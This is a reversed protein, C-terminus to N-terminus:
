YFCSWVLFVVFLVVFAWSCSSGWRLSFFSWSPFQCHCHGRLHDRESLSFVIIIIFKTFNMQGGLRRGVCLCVIFLFMVVGFYLSHVVFRTSSLSYFWSAWLCSSGWKFLFFVSFPIPLSVLLFAWSWSKPFCLILFGLNKKVVFKCLGLFKCLAMYICKWVM